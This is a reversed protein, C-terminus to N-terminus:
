DLQRIQMTQDIVLTPGRVGGPGGAHRATVTFGAGSTEVTYVYGDRGPKQLTLAGSSMLEELTAYRGQQALHLREAQAIASWDNRVGTLRIARTPASGPGAPQVPRLYLYYVGVGIAAALILAVLARM